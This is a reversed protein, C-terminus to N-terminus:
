RRGYDGSLKIGEGGEEGGEAEEGCIDGEVM